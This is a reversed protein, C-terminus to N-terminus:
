LNAIVMYVIFGGAFVCALIALLGVIRFAIDGATSKESM